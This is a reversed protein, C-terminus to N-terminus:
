HVRKLNIGYQFQFVVPSSAIKVAREPLWLSPLLFIWLIGDYQSGTSSTRLILLDLNQPLDLVVKLFGSFWLCMCCFTKLFFLLWSPRSILTPFDFTIFDIGSGMESSVPVTCAEM